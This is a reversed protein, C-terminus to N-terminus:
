DHVCDNFSHKTRRKNNDKLFFDCELSYKVTPLYTYESLHYINKKWKMSLKKTKGDRYFDLCALVGNKDWGLNRM